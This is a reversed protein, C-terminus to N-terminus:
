QIPRDTLCLTQLQSHKGLVASLHAVSGEFEPAAGAVKQLSTPLLSQYRNKQMAKREYRKTRSSYDIVSKEM